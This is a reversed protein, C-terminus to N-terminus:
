DFLTEGPKIQYKAAASKGQIVLEMFRKEEIGSSGVIFGAHDNPVDKLRNYCAFDGFKTKIVKGEQHDIEDAFLTTKCNGFNDIWWLAQPVDDVESLPMVESPIEVGDLLWKAVRPVFDYSRFQTHIIHEGTAQSIIEKQVVSKIVTPIDMVHIENVLGLKKVLSLTYGSISAVVLTKKYHFYGFPTGNPWRKGDGHRPAVNVLVVGEQGDSADLVDILNGAAQLTNGFDVGVSSIHTGFLISARTEQRGFTNADKCDNIITVFM